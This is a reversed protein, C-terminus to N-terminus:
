RLSDKTSRLEAELEEGNRGDVNQSPRQAPFIIQRRQRQQEREHELMDLTRELRGTLDEIIMDRTQVAKNVGDLGNKEYEELILDSKKREVENREYKAILARAKELETATSDRDGRVVDLEKHLAIAEENRLAAEENLDRCLSAYKHIKVQTEQQWRTQFLTVALFSHSDQFLFLFHM